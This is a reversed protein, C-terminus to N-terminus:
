STWPRKSGAGGAGLSMPAPGGPGRGFREVATALHTWLRVPDDDATDLLLWVVAGPREICWLRLLTTKGYGVPANGVTLAAGADGGVIELLRPRRFMGPQLRPLALKPEIVGISRSRLTAQASMEIAATGVGVVQTFM